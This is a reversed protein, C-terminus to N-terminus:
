VTLLEDKVIHLRIIKPMQDEEFHCNLAEKINIKVESLTEGETFISAGLARATYGGEVAEEIVFIIESNKIM